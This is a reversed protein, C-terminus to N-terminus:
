LQVQLCPSVGFKNIGQKASIRTTTRYRIPHASERADSRIEGLCFSKEHLNRCVLRRHKDLNVRLVIHRDHGIFPPQGGARHQGIAQLQHVGHRLPVLHGQLVQGFAVGHHAVVHHDAKGGLGQRASAPDVLADGGHGGCAGQFVQGHARADRRQRRQFAVRELTVAVGVAGHARAIDQGDAGRHLAHLAHDFVGHRADALFQQRAIGVHVVHDADFM